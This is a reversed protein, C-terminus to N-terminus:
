AQARFLGSASPTVLSDSSVTFNLGGLEDATLDALRAVAALFRDQELESVIGAALTRFKMIYDPRRWPKVGLPHADAVAIEDVIVRGDDLTVAVHGGFAKESPDASHYRKTWEPGEVTSIKHWLAM